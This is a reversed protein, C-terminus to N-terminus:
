LVRVVPDLPLVLTSRGVRRGVVSSIFSNTAMSQRWREAHRSSSGSSNKGIPLV